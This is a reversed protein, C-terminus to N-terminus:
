NTVALCHLHLKVIPTSLNRLVGLLFDEGLPSRENWPKNSFSETSIFMM